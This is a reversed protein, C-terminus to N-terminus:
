VHVRVCVWEGRVGEARQMTTSLRKYRVLFLSVAVDSVCVCVGVCGGVWGDRVGKARQLEDWYVCVCVCRVGKARQLEAWYVKEHKSGM